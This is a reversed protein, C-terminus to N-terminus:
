AALHLRKERARCAPIPRPAYQPTSARAHNCCRGDRQGVLRRDDVVEDPLKASSKSVVASERYPSREEEGGRGSADIRATGAPM